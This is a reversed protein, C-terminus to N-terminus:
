GKRYQVDDYVVFVDSAAVLQFYGIYPFLYPQMLALTMCAGRFPSLASSVPWVVMFGAAPTVAVCGRVDVGPDAWFVTGPLRNGWLRHAPGACTVVDEQVGSAISETSSPSAFHDSARFRSRIGAWVMSRSVLSGSERCSVRGNGRHSRSERYGSPT